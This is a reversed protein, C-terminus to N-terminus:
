QNWLKLKLKKALGIAADLEVEDTFSHFALLQELWDGSLLELPYAKENELNKSIWHKEFFVLTKLQEFIFEDLTQYQLKMSEM